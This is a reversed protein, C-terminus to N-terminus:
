GANSGHTDTCGIRVRCPCCNSSDIKKTILLVLARHSLWFSVQQQKGRKTILTFNMVPEETSTSTEGDEESDDIRKKKFGTPLTASEWLALAAKRGVRRSEASTDIMMKALEKEFEADAEPSPGM